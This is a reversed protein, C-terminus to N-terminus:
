DENEEKHEKIVGNIKDIIKPVYEFLKDISTPEGSEVPLMKIQNLGVVLFGVPRISVGAGSGGGFPSDEGSVATGRVPINSGGAGFGFTVKSIPIITTGDPTQVSDGIITNVDVMEKISRMSAEILGQIPHAM